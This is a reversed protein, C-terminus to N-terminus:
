SLPGISAMSTRLLTIYFMPLLIKVQREFVANLLLFLYFFVVLFAIAFSIENCASAIPPYIKLQFEKSNCVLQEKIVKRSHSGQKITQYLKRETM